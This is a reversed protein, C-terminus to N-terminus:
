LYMDFAFVGPGMFLLTFSIVALLLYFGAGHKPSLSPKYKIIGASILTLVGAVLVAPQMYLGLTIALGALAELTTITTFVTRARYIGHTEFLSIHVHREKFLKTYALIIFTLGLAVRLIAIGLLSFDFLHPFVSPIMM